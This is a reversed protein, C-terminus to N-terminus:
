KQNNKRQFKLARKCGLETLSGVERPHQNFYVLGKSDLNVMTEYIELYTFLANEYDIVDLYIRENPKRGMFLLLEKEKQSLCRSDIEKALKRTNHWVETIGWFFSLCGALVMSGFVVPAWDAPVTPVISPFSKQGFVMVLSTIFICVVVGRTIALHRLLSVLWEM